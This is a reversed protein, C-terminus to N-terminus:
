VRTTHKKHTSQKQTQTHKTTPPPVCTIHRFINTSTQQQANDDYEATQQHEQKTYKNQRQTFSPTQNTTLTPMNLQTSTKNHKKEQHQTNQTTKNLM